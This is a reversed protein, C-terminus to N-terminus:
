KKKKFAAGVSTDASVTVVCTSVGRCAGSWGAFKYGKAAVAKM